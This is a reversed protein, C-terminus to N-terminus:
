GRLANLMDLYVDVTKEADGKEFYTHRCEYCDDYDYCIATAMYGFAGNTQSLVFTAKYPSQERVNMSVTDFMEYPGAILGLEGCGLAHLTLQARVADFQTTTTKITGTELPAVQKAADLVYQGLLEGYEIPSETREEGPLASSTALNGSAGMFLAFHCESNKEVYDRCFGVYDASIMYRHAKGFDTSGTSVKTAHGMWNIMVIPKKDARDFQLLRLEKDAETRM